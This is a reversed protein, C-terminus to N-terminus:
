DLEEEVAFLPAVASELVSWGGEIGNPHRWLLRLYTEDPEWECVEIVKYTQGLKLPIDEPYATLFHKRNLKSPELIVRVVDGTKYKSM